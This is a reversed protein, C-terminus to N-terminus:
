GTCQGNHFPNFLRLCQRSGRPQRDRENTTGSHRRRCKSVGNGLGPQESGELPHIIGNDSVTSHAGRPQAITKNEYKYTKCLTLQLSIFNQPCHLVFHFFIATTRFFGIDTYTVIHSKAREESLIRLKESQSFTSENSFSFFFM